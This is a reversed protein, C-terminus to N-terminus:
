DVWTFHYKSHYGTGDGFSSSRYSCECRKKGIWLYFPQSRFSSDASINVIRGWKNGKMHPYVLKSILYVGKMNSDMIYDWDKSELDMLKTKVWPGATNIVIDISNFTEITRQILTKVDQENSVNGQVAIAKRGLNTIQGMLEGSSKNASRDFIVINAGKKALEIATLYGLKKSGGIIIATRGMLYDDPM